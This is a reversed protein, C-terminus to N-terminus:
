RSRKEQRRNFEKELDVVFKEFDMKHKTKEPLIMLSAAWRQNKAVNSVDLKIVTMDVQRHLSYVGQYWWEGQATLSHNASDLTIYEKHGDDFLVTFECNDKFIKCNSKGSLIFPLSDSKSEVDTIDFLITGIDEISLHTTKEFTWIPKRNKM